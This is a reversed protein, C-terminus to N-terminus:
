NLYFLIICELVRPHTQTFQIYQVVVVCNNVCYTNDRTVQKEQRVTVYALKQTNSRSDIGEATRSAIARLTCVEEVQM